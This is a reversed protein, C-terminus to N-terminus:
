SKKAFPGPFNSIIKVGSTPSFYIKFTKSKGFYPPTPNAIYLV